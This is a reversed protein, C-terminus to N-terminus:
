FKESRRKGLLVSISSGVSFVLLGLVSSPEPVPLSVVTAPEYPKAYNPIFEFDIEGEQVFHALDPRPGGNLTFSSVATHRFWGVKTPHLLTPDDVSVLEHYHVFGEAAFEEAIQSTWEDIIVEATYLLSRDPADSSWWNSIGDPAFETKPGINWHQATLTTPSTQTWYHGPIDRASTPYIPPGEWYFNLGDVNIIIGNVGQFEQASAPSAIVPTITVTGIGLLGVGIFNLVKM